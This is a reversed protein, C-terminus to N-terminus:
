IPLAERVKRAAEALAEVEIVPWHAGELGRRVREVLERLQAVGCIGASADLRHLRDRLATADARATFARLEGPLAELEHAFLARLAVAIAPDGGAVRLARAEDVWVPADEAVATRLHDNVADLLVEAAIPKSLVRSFGCALLEAHTGSAPDATTAIAVADRSPGVDARIRALAEPGSCGPMRADLLLLDHRQAHALAVAANGDAAESCEIGPAALAAVLFRLSLPNDDAVLIRPM